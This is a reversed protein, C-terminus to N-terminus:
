KAQLRTGDSMQLYDIEELVIPIPSEVALIAVDTAGKSQFLPIATGDKLVLAVNAYNAAGTGPPTPFDSADMLLCSFNESPEPIDFSIAVQLPTVRISTLTVDEIADIAEFEAAGNRVVWVKTSVPSELLEIEGSDAEELDIVFKWEGSVLLTKPYLREAEEPTFSYGRQGAYKTTLLEQEYARDHGRKVIDKFVIECTKGPGFASEAGQEIVPNIRFVLELTNNKGDGDDATEYSINAPLDSASPMAQLDPFSLSADSHVDLIDSFDMDEPATLGFLAYVTNSVPIVSKLEISFGGESQRIPHAQADKNPYESQKGSLPEQGKNAFATCGALLILVAVISTALVIRKKM